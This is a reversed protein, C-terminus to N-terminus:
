EKTGFIDEKSKLSMAGDKVEYIMDCHQVTTLRHAIIIMTKSGQLKEISEMVAKETANDLASTAEDLVLIDPNYYLARAIGIRQKQGGSLRAGREGIRTHIGEPLAEVFEKLQAEELAKWVRADDIEEDAIGFAVNKRIDDDFLFIAQPIYGLRKQWDYIKENIRKGDVLMDGSQPELVGLIIDALTTKGAGSPGIFAMSQNKKLTLNINELVNKDSDPYHFCIDKMEFQENLRIDENAEEVEKMRETAERMETISGCIEYFSPLHFTISNIYSSIKNVSPLLRFAAIAFVSVIPVFTAVNAGMAIRISLSIMLSGICVVEMAQKPIIGAIDCKRHLEAYMTSKQYYDSMFFHESHTIKVEKVGGFAELVCKNMKAEYERDNKGMVVMRTKLARLILLLSLGLMVVVSFTVVYDTLLLFVVLVASVLIESTLQLLNLIVVFCKNSDSTINRILESSNRERLKIYPQGMYYKMMTCALNRQNRYTFKYIENNMFVLYLNKLIYIVVLGMAIMIIITNGEIGFETSAWALIPTSEVFGPNIISDVFPLIASVGLLEAASGILILILLGLLSWVKNKGLVIVAKKIIGM